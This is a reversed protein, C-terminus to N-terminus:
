ANTTNTINLTTMKWPGNPAAAEHVEAGGGILTTTTEPVL